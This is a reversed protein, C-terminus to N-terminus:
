CRWRSHESQYYVSSASRIAHQYLQRQKDESSPNKPIAYRTPGIGVRNSTKLKGLDLEPLRGSMYISPCGLSVANHIDLLSLAKKTFEGRVGIVASKQSLIKLFRKSGDPIETIQEITDLQTGLGVACIPVTIQELRDALKQWDTRKSIWNAAPIILASYNKNIEDPSFAFGIHQAKSFHTYVAKTFLMNGFNNGSARLADPGSLGSIKALSIAVIGIRNTSM